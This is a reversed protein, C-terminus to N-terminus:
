GVEPTTELLEAFSRHPLGLVSLSQAEDEQIIAVASPIANWSNQCLRAVEYAKEHPAYYMIMTQVDNDRFVDAKFMQLKFFDVFDHKIDRVHSLDVLQSQGFCFDPHSLYSQLMARSDPVNATPGFRIYVLGYQPMIHFDVSM